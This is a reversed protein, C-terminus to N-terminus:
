TGEYFAKLWFFIHYVYLLAISLLLIKNIIRKHRNEWLLAVLYFLTTNLVVSLVIMVTSIFYSSKIFLLAIIILPHFAAILFVQLLPPINVLSQWIFLWSIFPFIFGLIIFNRKKM